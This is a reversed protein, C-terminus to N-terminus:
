MCQQLYQPGNRFLRLAGGVWPLFTGVSPVARSDQHFHSHIFCLACLVTLLPLSLLVITGM